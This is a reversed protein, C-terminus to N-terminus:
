KDGEQYVAKQLQHLADYNYKQLCKSDLIMAEIRKLESKIFFLEAKVQVMEERRKSAELQQSTLIYEIVNQKDAYVLSCSLSLVLMVMYKM